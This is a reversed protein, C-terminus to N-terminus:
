GIQVKTVCDIKAYRRGKEDISTLAYNGGYARCGTYKGGGGGGGSPTSQLPARQPVTPPPPPPPTGRAARDHDQAARREAEIRQREIEAQREAEVRQRELEAESEQQEIDARRQVILEDRDKLDAILERLEKQEERYGNHAAEAFDSPQGAKRQLSRADSLLSVVQQEFEELETTDMALVSAVLLPAADGVLTDTQQPISCDEPLEHIGRGAGRAMSEAASVQPYFRDNGGFVVAVGYGERAIEANVLTGDIFVGALDRGYRDTREQDYELSIEAGAPLLSKLYETADQALCDDPMGDRGIEPTDVNLLRIRTEKGNVSADITDGDIVRIVTPSPGDDTLVAVTAVAGVTVVGAILAGKLM